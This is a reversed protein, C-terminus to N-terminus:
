RMETREETRNGRRGSAKGNRPWMSEFVDKTIYDAPSFDLSELSQDCLFHEGYIPHETSLYITKDTGIEIQRVVENGVIHFYYMINEDEWLKKIYSINTEVDAYREIVYLDVSPQTSAANNIVQKIENWNGGGLGAGIAPMAIETVKDNEAMQMMKCLSKEIYELEAKEWWTKQTGLNYIVGDKYSYKFVDGVVYKNTKCLAKYQEYMQPFKHKFQLAIGRGMAGACNCGHAYNRLQPIRFLDGEQIYFVM